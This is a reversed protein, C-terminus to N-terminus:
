RRQKKRGLRKQPQVRRHGDAAPSHHAQQGAAKGAAAEEQQQQEAALARAAEEAQIRELWRHAILMVDVQLLSSHKM